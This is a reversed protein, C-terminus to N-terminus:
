GIPNWDEKDKFVSMKGKRLKKLLKKTMKIAGRLEDEKDMIDEPIIMISELAMLYEGIHDAMQRM